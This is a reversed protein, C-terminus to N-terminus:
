KTDKLAYTYCDKHKRGPQGLIGRRKGELAVPCVWTEKGPRDDILRMPTGCDPCPPNVGALNM